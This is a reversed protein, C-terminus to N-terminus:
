LGAVLGHNDEQAQGYAIMRGLYPPPRRRHFAPSTRPLM